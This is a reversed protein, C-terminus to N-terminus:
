INSSRCMWIISTAAEIVANGGARELMRGHEGMEPCEYFDQRREDARPRTLDIERIESAQFTRRIIREPPASRPDAHVKRCM